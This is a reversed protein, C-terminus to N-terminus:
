FANENEVDVTTSYLFEYYSLISSFSLLVNEFANALSFNKFNM